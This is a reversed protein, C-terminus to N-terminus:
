KNNKQKSLLSTLFGIQFACSLAIRLWLTTWSRGAKSMYSGLPAIVYGLDHMLSIRDSHKTRIQVGKARGYQFWTRVGRSLSAIQLHIVTADIRRVQYGAALVRSGWEADEGTVLSELYPGVTDFVTSQYALNPSYIRSLQHLDYDLQRLAAYGTSIHSKTLSKFKVGGLVIQSQDLSKAVSSLYDKSVPRCDSDFMLIKAASANRVGLNRAGPISPKIMEIIRVHNYLELEKKVNGSYGETAGNLVVIVEVRFEETPILSQVCDVIGPDNSVAIIVSLQPNHDTSM